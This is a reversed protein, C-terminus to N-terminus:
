RIWSKYWFSKCFSLWTMLWVLPLNAKYEELEHHLAHQDAESKSSALACLRVGGGALLGIWGPRCFTTLSKQMRELLPEEKDIM